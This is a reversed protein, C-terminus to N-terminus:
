YPPHDASTTLLLSSSTRSSSCISLTNSFSFSNFLIPSSFNYKYGSLGLYIGLSLLSKIGLTILHCFLPIFISLNKSIYGSNFSLYRFASSSSLYNM